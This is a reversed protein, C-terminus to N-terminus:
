IRQVCENNYQSELKIRNVISLSNNLVQIIMESSIKREKVLEVIPNYIQIICNIMTDAHYPLTPVAFKNSCRNKCFLLLSPLNPFKNYKHIFNIFYKIGTFVKDLPGIVKTVKDVWTSKVGNYIINYYPRFTIPCIKVDSEFTNEWSKDEDYVSWNVIHTVSDPVWNCPLAIDSASKSANVMKSLGVLEDITLEQFFDPFTNLIKNIQTQSAPGDLPIWKINGERHKVDDDVDDLNIEIANQVLCTIKNKFNTNVKKSMSLMTMLVKTRTIQKLTQQSVPYKLEKLILLMPEMNFLHLRCTDRDTPMDFLCSNVCYWVAVDNPIKTLVYQPMGTLSAFTDYTKLRYIMHQTVQDKIDSLYAWTDKKILYWIVAWYMHLNGLLKGSTFLKSITYNGCEVHQSCSGLPITGILEQRTFPNRKLNDAIEIGTWQSIASKLKDIIEPYNLIRLPCAIIDDVIHKEFNALIPEGIDVVMIQPVDEDMIIPCHVPKEILETIEIEVKTSTEQKVNDARAMKNSRIENISFIGRLDGCLNILYGIKKEIEMGIDSNFYKDTMEKAISLASDFNESELNTRILQGYNTGTKKALNALDNALHKRLKILKNKIVMDGSKGMNRSIILSELQEYKTNFTELDISELENIFDNDPKVYVQTNFTPEYETKWYVHSNNNRTFPCTVSLNPNNRAIIYCEVNNLQTDSLVLDARTVYTNSVEGDTIIVINSTIKCETLKKAIVEPWTGGRGTKKFIYEEFKNSTVRDIKDDWVFINNIKNNYNNYIKRVSNWYETFNGVSGSIDVFLTYEEPVTNNNMNDKNFNM